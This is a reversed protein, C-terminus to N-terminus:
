SFCDISQNWGREAKKASNRTLRSLRREKGGKESRNEFGYKRMRLRGSFSLEAEGIKKAKEIKMEFGKRFGDSKGDLFKLEFKEKVKLLSNCLLKSVPEIGM